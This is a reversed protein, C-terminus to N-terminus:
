LITLAKDELSYEEITPFDKLNLTWIVSFHMKHFEKGRPIIQDNTGEHLVIKRYIKVASNKGHFANKTTLRGEGYKPLPPPPLCWSLTEWFLVSLM